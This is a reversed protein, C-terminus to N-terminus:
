QRVDSVCRQASQENVSAVLWCEISYIYVTLYNCFVIWPLRTRISTHHDTASLHMTCVTCKPGFCVLYCLLYFNNFWILDFVTHRANIMCLVVAHLLTTWCQCREVKSLRPTNSKCYNNCFRFASQFSLKQWIMRWM